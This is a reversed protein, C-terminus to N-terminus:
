DTKQDYEDEEDSAQPLVKDYLQFLLEVEEYPLDITYWEYDLFGNGDAKTPSISVIAGKPYCVYENACPVEVLIEASVAEPFDGEICNLIELPATFFMALFRHQGNYHSEELEIDKIYQKIM